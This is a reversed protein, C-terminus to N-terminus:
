SIKIAAELKEIGRAYDKEELIVDSAPIITILEKCFLSQNVILNDFAM